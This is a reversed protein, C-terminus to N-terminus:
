SQSSIDETFGGNRWCTNNLACYNPAGCAITGGPCMAMTVVISGINEAVLDLDVLSKQEAVSILADCVSAESM